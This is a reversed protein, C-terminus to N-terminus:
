SEFSIILGEKDPGFTVKYHPGKPKQLSNSGSLKRKAFEKELSAYIQAIGEECTTHPVYCGRNFHWFICESFKWLADDYKKKGFLM